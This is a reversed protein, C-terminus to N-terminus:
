GQNSEQKGDEGEISSPSTSWRSSKKIILIVRSCPEAPAPVGRGRMGGMMQEMMGMMQDMHQLHALQQEALERVLTARM